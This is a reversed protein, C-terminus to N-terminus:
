VRRWRALALSFVGFLVLGVAIAALLWPGAPTDAFSRLTDDMGKAQGADYDLAARVAFVGAVAFLAGRAVGGVVGLVDIVKRTRRSMQAHKLHKHFSRRAAQVVIWVGAGAIVLGAIGVLWQGAPWGLADATVDRSKKDSSGSGQDKIAFSIMSYAMFGYFVARGASMARKRAKRGDPGAAGFLAESLRWLALGAIGIGVAWILFAGFPQRGLERLAGGNDAQEGGGFALRLALLGVLVYLVGRAALGWRAAADMASSNAAKRAAGRGGRVAAMTGM